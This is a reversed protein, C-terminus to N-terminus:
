PAAKPKPTPKMLKLYPEVYKELLPGTSLHMPQIGAAGAVGGMELKIETFGEHFGIRVTKPYGVALAKRTRNASPDSHYPDWADLMASLDDKGLTVIDIRGELELRRPNLRLAANADVVEDSRQNGDRKPALGTVNGRFQVDTLARAALDVDLILQGTIKGGFASMELQDLAILNRDVRLNGAIPGVTSDGVTLTACTMFDEDALFPQYDAFRERSYVGLRAGGLLVTGADDLRYGMKIPIKANLGALALKRNPFNLDADQFEMGTSLQFFRFDNSEVGFPVRMSGRGSM